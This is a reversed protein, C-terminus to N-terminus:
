LGSKGSPIPEYRVDYIGKRMDIVYDYYTIMNGDRESRWRMLTGSTALPEKRDPKGYLAELRNRTKIGDDTSETKLSVAVLRDDAFYYTATFYIDDAQYGSELLADGMGIIKLGSQRGPSVRSINGKGFNELEGASMGWRTYQWDAAAPQIAAILIGVVAAIVKMYNPGSKNVRALMRHQGNRRYVGPSDGVM